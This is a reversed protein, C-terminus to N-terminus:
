ENKTKTCLNESRIETFGSFETKMRISEKFKSSQNWKSNYSFLINEISPIQAWMRYATHMHLTNYMRNKHCNNTKLMNFESNIRVINMTWVESKGEFRQIICEIWIAQLKKVQHIFEDWCFNGCIQAECLSSM